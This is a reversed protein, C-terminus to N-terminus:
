GSKAALEAYLRQVQAHEPVDDVYGRRMASDTIRAARLKLADVATRAAESARPDGAAVMARLMALNTWLPYELPAGNQDSHGLIEAEPLSLRLALAIDGPDHRALLAECRAADAQAAQAPSGLEAALARASEGAELAEAHRGLAALARAQRMRLGGLRSRLAPEGALAIGAEAHALAGAADGTSLLIWSLLNRWACMGRRFGIETALALAREAHGRAAKYDGTEALTEALNGLCVAQLQRESSDLAIEYAQEACRRALAYDGADYGANGENVLLYAEAV